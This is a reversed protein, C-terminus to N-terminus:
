FWEKDKSHAGHPYDYTLTKQNAMGFESLARLSEVTALKPLGPLPSFVISSFFKNSKHFVL